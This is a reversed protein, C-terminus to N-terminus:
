RTRACASGPLRGSGPQVWYSRNTEEGKFPDVHAGNDIVDFHLHPWISKGSSGIEGLIEGCGVRQGKSVRISNKKLHLYQTEIGYGHDIKIKNADGAPCTPKTLTAMLKDVSDIAGLNLGCQDPHGDVVYSVVGDAAAIVYNRDRNMAEFGGRLSFDTGEHGGYCFIGAPTNGRGQFDSCEAEHPRPFPNHDMHRPGFIGDTAIASRPRLPLSFKVAPDPGVFVYEVDGGVGPRQLARYKVSIQQSVEQNAVVARPITWQREHWTTDAHWASDDLGFHISSDILKGIVRQKLVVTKSAAATKISVPLNFEYTAGDRLGARQFWLVPVLEGPPVINTDNERLPLSDGGASYYPARNPLPKAYFHRGIGFGITGGSKRPSSLYLTQNTNNRVYIRTKDVFSAVSPEEPGCSGEPRTMLSTCHKSRCEADSKCPDGQEGSCVGRYPYAAHGTCFGSSCYKHNTCYEGPRGGRPAPVCTATKSTEWGIDCAGSQCDSPGDCHYGLKVSHKGVCEGQHRPPKNHGSCSASRCYKNNTCYEGTRGTAPAPVCTATKSTEWGVDCAGSACESSDRCSQGLKRSGASSAPAAVGSGAIVALWLIWRRAPGM